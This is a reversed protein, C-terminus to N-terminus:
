RSREVALDLWREFEEGLAALAADAKPKLQVVLRNGPLNSVSCACAERMENAAWLVDPLLYRRADVLVVVRGHEEEVVVRNGSATLDGQGEVAPVDVHDAPAGSHEDGRTNGLSAAFEQITQQNETTISFATQALYNRIPAAAQFARENVSTAILARNLAREMGASDLGAELPVLILTLKGDVAEGVRGDIRDSLVYLASQVIPLPFIGLDVVVERTIESAM